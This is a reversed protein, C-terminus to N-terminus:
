NKTYLYTGRNDGTTISITLSKGSLTATGIVVTGQSLTASNGSYTYTGRGFDATWSDDTLVLTDDENDGTGLYTGPFPNSDGGGSDTPCGTLGLGLVLAAGLIAAFVCAQKKM